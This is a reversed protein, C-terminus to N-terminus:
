YHLYEEVLVGLGDLLQLGGVGDIRLVEGLPGLVCGGHVLIVEPSGKLSLTESCVELMVVGNGVLLGGLCEANRLLPLELSLEHKAVDRITRPLLQLWPRLCKGKLLLHSEVSQLDSSLSVVNEM